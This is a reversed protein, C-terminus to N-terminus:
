SRHLLVWRGVALAPQWGPLAAWRPDDPPARLLAWGYGGATLERLAAERTLADMRFGPALPPVAGPRYIVLQQHNRAFSVECRVDAEVQAWAVFHVFPTGPLGEFGADDVLGLLAAGRPLEAWLADVQRAERDFARFRAGLVM